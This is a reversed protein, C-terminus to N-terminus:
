GNTIIEDLVKNIAESLLYCRITVDCSDASKLYSVDSGFASLAEGLIDLNHCIAEEARWANCFYSGSANGTVSDEDFLEEQLMCAVDFKNDETLWVGNEDALEAKFDEHEDLWSRVDDCIAQLYDYKEM